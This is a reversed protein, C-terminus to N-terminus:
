GAIQLDKGFRLRYGTEMSQLKKEGTKEQLYQTYRLFAYSSTAGAKFYFHYAQRSRKHDADGAVYVAGSVTISDKERHIYFTNDPSALNVLSGPLTAVTHRQFSDLSIGAHNDTPMVAMLQLMEEEERNENINSCAVASLLAISGIFVYVAKMFLTNEYLFSFLHQTIIQM